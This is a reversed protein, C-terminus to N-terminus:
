CEVVGGGLRSDVDERGKRRRWGLFRCEDDKGEPAASGMGVEGKEGEEGLIGGM